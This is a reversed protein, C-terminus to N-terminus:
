GRNLLIENGCYPCPIIEPPTGTCTFPVPKKCESCFTIIASLPQNTSFGVARKVNEAKLESRVNSFYAPKNVEMGIAEDAGKVETKFLSDKIVIPQLEQRRLRDAINVEHLRKMTKLIEITYKTEDDDIIKHHNRCMLILNDYDDRDEFDPIYRAAGSKEGVIHCEEGILTVKEGDMVALQKDCTEGQFNYSCLNGAKAWLIKRDKDNLPV